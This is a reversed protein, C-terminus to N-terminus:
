YEILISNYHLIHYLFRQKIAEDELSNLKKALETLVKHLGQSEDRLNQILIKDQEHAAISSSLHETVENKQNRLVHLQTKQQNIENNRDHLITHLKSLLMYRIEADEERMKANEIEEQHTEKAVRIIEKEIVNCKLIIIYYLSM